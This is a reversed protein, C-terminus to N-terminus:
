YDDEVGAAAFMSSMVESSAAESWHGADGAQRLPMAAREARVRSREAAEVELLGAGDPVATSQTSGITSGRAREDNSHAGGAAAMAAGGATSALAPLRPLAGDDDDDDDFKQCPGVRAANRRAEAPAAGSGGRAVAWAVAWASFAYMAIAGACSANVALLGGAAPGQLYVVADCVALAEPALGRGENPLVLATDGAFAAASHLPLHPVPTPPLVEGHTDASEGGAGSGSGRSSSSSSSGGGGGDGGGDTPRGGAVGVIRAGLARLHAAAADHSHLRVIPVLAHTGMSCALNVGRRGVVVVQAAGFAVASRVLKGVNTDRSTNTLVLYLVPACPKQAM